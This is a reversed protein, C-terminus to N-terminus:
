VDGLVSGANGKDKFLNKDFNQPIFHQLTTKKIPQEDFRCDKAQHMSQTASTCVPSWSAHTVDQKFTVPLTAFTQQKDQVSQVCAPEFVDICYGTRSTCTCQVGTHLSWLRSRDFLAGRTM